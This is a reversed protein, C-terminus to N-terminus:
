VACTTVSRTDCTVGDRGAIVSEDNDSNNTDGNVTFPDRTGCPSEHLTHPLSGFHSVDKTEVERGSFSNLKQIM